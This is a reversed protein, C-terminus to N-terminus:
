SYGTSVREQLEPQLFGSGSDFDPRCLFIDFIVSRRLAKGNTILLDPVAKKEALREQQHHVSDSKVLCLDGKKGHYGLILLAEFEANFCCIM